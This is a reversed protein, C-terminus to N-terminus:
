FKRYKLGRGNGEKTILNLSELSKLIEIVKNKGFGTKEVITSSALPLVNSLSELVIKQNSTLETQHNIYPLVITICHESIDFKPYVNLNKYSEKIRRIGTGIMEALHLRFFINAIIKNRFFSVKGDYFENETIESLLGGPSYIEIKNKYIFVRINSNIDWTRHILANAIAERYAVEPLLEREEREAGEIVEYKCKKKLIDLTKYYMEIISIHNLSTREKIININEGFEVIDIGPFDNNDSLLAAAINYGNDKTYLFLSTLVDKSVKIHLKSYLERELTSFSLEQNKSPLEEFSMRQGTLILRTLEIPEVVITSTDNRKYANSKYLYPKDLGEEVKLSITNNTENETLTFIPQPKINDNIANEISLRTNTLNPLGKVKGTDDIGFIITGGEYNSFASVTKLFTNSVTEKFELDKKEKM